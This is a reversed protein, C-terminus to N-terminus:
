LNRTASASEFPGLFVEARLRQRLPGSTDQQMQRRQGPRMERAIETGRGMSKHLEEGRGPLAM